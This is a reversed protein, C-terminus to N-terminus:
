PGHRAPGAREGARRSGRSGTWPIPSAHAPPSSRTTRGGGSTPPNIRTCRTPREPTRHFVRSRGSARGAATRSSIASRTPYVPGGVWVAMGNTRGSTSAENRATRSGVRAPRDAGSRPSSRPRRPHASRLSPPEAPSTRRATRTPTGGLTRISWAGLGTLRSPVAPIIQTAAPTEALTRGPKKVVISEGLAINLAPGLACIECLTPSTPEVQALSGPFYDWSGDPHAANALTQLCQTAVPDLDVM